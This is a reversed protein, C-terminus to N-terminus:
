YKPVVISFETMDQKSDVFISSKYKELSQKVIYLGYGRNKGKKTSFGENFIEETNIIENGNNKIKFIYCLEDGYIILEVFKHSIERDDLADFANDIINSVINCFEFNPIKIKDIKMKVIVNFNIKRHKSQEQKLSIVSNLFINGTEIYKGENNIHETLSEIYQKANKYKDDKLLSYIIQMHRLYDHRQKRLIRINKKVDDLNKEILMDEYEKKFKEKFFRMIIFIMICISIMLIVIILLTFKKELDWERSKCISIYMNFLIFIICNLIFSIMVVLYDNEITDKRMNFSYIEVNKKHIIISVMILLVISPSFYGIRLIENKVLDNYNFGLSYIGMMNIYQILASIMWGFIVSLISYIINIKKFLKLVISFAMIIFLSHIGFPIKIYNLIIYCFIGSITSMLILEKFDKKIGIVTEAILLICFAEPISGFILTRWTVHGM